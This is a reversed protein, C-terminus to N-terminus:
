RYLQLFKRYIKNNNNKKNKKINKNSCIHVTDKLSMSKKTRGINKENEYNKLSNALDIAQFAEYDKNLVYGRM